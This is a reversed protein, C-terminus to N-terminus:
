RPLHILEKSVTTLVRPKTDVILTDEIRIGFRNPLYVGPEITVVMNRKLTEKSSSALSPAEHIELGVGHGLSHIFHRAYPGLLKRAKEALERCSAGPVSQAVLQEQARRVLKYIEKEKSSPVGLFITRTTDTCYGRYRVGFDIVCFGRQLPAQKAHYHPCAANKGSAVIPPFSLTCGRRITEAILFTEADKETSFSSFRSVCSRLIDDSIACAKKMLACEEKTKVTRLASCLHSVNAFKKKLLRKLGVYTQASCFTLDVGIKKGRLNKKLLSHLHKRSDYRKVVVGAPAEELPSLFLVPKGRVPVVLFGHPASDSSLLFQMNPQFGEESLNTFLATAINEKRLEKQLASIM